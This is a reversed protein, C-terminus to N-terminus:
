DLSTTAPSTFGTSKRSALTLTTSTSTSGSPPSAKFADVLARWTRRGASSATRAARGETFMLKAPSPLRRDQSTSAAEHMTAGHRDGMSAVRYRGHKWSQHSLRTRGFVTQIGAATAANVYTQPPTCGNSRDKESFRTAM